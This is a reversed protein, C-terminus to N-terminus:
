NNAQWKGTNFDINDYDCYSRQNLTNSIILLLKIQFSFLFTTISNFKSSHMANTVCKNYVRNVRTM